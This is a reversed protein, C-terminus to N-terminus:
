LDRLGKFIPFIPFTMEHSIEKVGDADECSCRGLGSFSKEWRKISKLNSLAAENDLIHRYRFLRGCIVSHSYQEIDCPTYEVPVSFVSLLM